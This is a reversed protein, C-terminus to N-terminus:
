TLGITLFWTRFNSILCTFFEGKSLPLSLTLLIWPTKSLDLCSRIWWCTFLPFPWNAYFHLTSHSWFLNPFRTNANQIGLVQFIRKKEEKKEKYNAFVCHCPCMVFKVFMYLAEVGALCLCPSIGLPSFYFYIDKKQEDVSFQRRWCITYWVFCCCCTWCSALIRTLGFDLMWFCRYTKM